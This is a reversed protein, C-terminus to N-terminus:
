AGKGRVFDLYQRVTFLNQISTKCFHLPAQNNFDPNPSNLWSRENHSNLFMASLSRHIAFINQLIEKKTDDVKFFAGRASYKTLLSPSVRLMKALGINDLEWDQQIKLLHEYLYRFRIDNNETPKECAIEM